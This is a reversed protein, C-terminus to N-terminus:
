DLAYSMLEHSVSALLWHMEVLSGTSSALYLDGDKTVGVVVVTELDKEVAGELVTKPAIDEKTIVVGQRKSDLDIIAAM